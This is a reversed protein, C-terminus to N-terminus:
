RRRGFLRLLLLFLNIFDLYLALAGMIAAKRATEGVFGMLAMQKIKQTDYATLGIFIAIGIYTIAWYTVTSHLFVNVISAIIIGILGMFCLSGLSTLDRKTAYGYVSMAGFTGATVFFTAAISEGTYVLFVVSFILGMSAAYILYLATAVTASIRNIGWSLVMVLLLQGIFIGWFAGSQVLQKMLDPHTVLIAAVVGTLALGATMWVYVKQVFTLQFAEAEARRAPPVYIEIRSM